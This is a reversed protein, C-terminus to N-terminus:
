SRARVLRRAVQAVAQILTRGFILVGGAVAAVVSAMPMVVDPGVYALLM